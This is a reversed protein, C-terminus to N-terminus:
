VRVVLLCLVSLVLFLVKCAGDTLGRPLFWCGVRCVRPSVLVLCAFDRRLLLLFFEM